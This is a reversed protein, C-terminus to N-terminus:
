RFFSLFLFFFTPKAKLKGSANEKKWLVMAVLSSIGMEREGKSIAELVSFQENYSFKQWMLGMINKGNAPM